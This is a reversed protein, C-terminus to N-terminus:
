AGVEALTYVSDGASVSGVGKLDRQHGKAQLGAVFHDRRRKGIHSGSLHNRKKAESRDEYVDVGVGKREVEVLHAGGDRRLGLGNHRHM